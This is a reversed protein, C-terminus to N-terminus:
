LERDIVPFLHLVSGVLSERHLDTLFLPDRSRSRYRSIIDKFLDVALTKHEREDYLRPGLAARCAEIDDFGSLLEFFVELIIIVLVTGQETLFVYFLAVSGLVSGVKESVSVAAELHVDDSLVCPPIRKVAAETDERDSEM